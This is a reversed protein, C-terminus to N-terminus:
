HLGSRALEIDSSTEISFLLEPYHTLFVRCDLRLADSLMEAIEGLSPRSVALKLGVWPGVLKVLSSPNQRAQMLGSILDERALAVEPRFLLCSSGTYQGDRASLYPTLRGPFVSEVDARSAVPYVVDADPANALLDEVAETTALPMDGAMVLCRDAQRAEHIGAMLDDAEAGGAVVHMCQCGVQEYSDSNCVLIVRSIAGCSQLTHILHAAAPRGNVPTLSGSGGAAAVVIADTSIM